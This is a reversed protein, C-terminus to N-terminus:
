ESNFTNYVESPFVVEKRIKSSWFKNIGIAIFKFESSTLFDSKANNCIHCALRCNSPSYINKFEPFTVVREIELSIARTKRKLNKYVKSNVADEQNVGCYCCTNPQKKYWTYFSRFDKFAFNALNKKSNFRNRIKQISSIQEQLQNHLEQVEKRSINMRKEINSYTLQEFSYLEIFVKKRDM